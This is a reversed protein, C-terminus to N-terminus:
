LDRKCFLGIFSVINQLLSGYEYASIVGYGGYRPTCTASSAYSGKDKHTMKRLLSRFKTARKHFIQLRPSGILRRWGTICTNVRDKSNKNYGRKQSIQTSTSSEDILQQRTYFITERIHGDRICPPTVVILLSRKIIPRKQLIYHKRYPEKQM